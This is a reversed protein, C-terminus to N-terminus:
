REGGPEKVFSAYRIERSIELCINDSLDTRDGHAEIFRGGNERFIGPKKMFRYSVANTWCADQPLTKLWASAMWKVSRLNKQWKM